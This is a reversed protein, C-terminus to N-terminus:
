RRRGHGDRRSGRGAVAIRIHGLVPGPRMRRSSMEHRRGPRVADDASAASRESILALDVSHQVQDSQASGGGSGALMGALVMLQTSASAATSTAASTASATLGIETMWNLLLRGIYGGVFPHLDFPIYGLRTLGIEM